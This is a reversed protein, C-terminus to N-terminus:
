KRAALGEERLAFAWAIDDPVLGKGKAGPGELVCPLGEFRPESLFAALGRPRDRRRRPQRPPRPQLRAADGLRQRAALRAPRPRHRPRVRRAGRRAGGRHPRRLRLRAPPLLGPLRRAARRRRRGRAAARAGRVLPRAHRGRGGHGRPAAPVGRVRRAGRRDGQRRARDRRRGRRRGQAGLRPAARRLAGLAAGARLSSTLSAHSKERIEQDESACNLLYVAHILLADVDSDAM